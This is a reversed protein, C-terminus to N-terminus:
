LALILFKVAIFYFSSTCSMYMGILLPLFSLVGGFLSRILGHVANQLGAQHKIRASVPRVSRSAVLGVTVTLCESATLHGPRNERAMTARLALRNMYTVPVFPCCRGSLRERKPSLTTVIIVFTVVFVTFTDVFVFARGTTSLVPPHKNSHTYTSTNGAGCGFLLLCTRCSGVCTNYCAFLPNTFVGYTYYFSAKWM